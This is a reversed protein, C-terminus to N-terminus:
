LRLSFDERDKTLNENYYPDGKDIIDEWRERVHHVEQIVRKQKEPTDEYGRSLSEHHFLMAYPTYVLLYGADRIKLCLDVDNFAIALKEDFGGIQEFINKKMLLCAATVASVNQITDARGFYGHYKEPLHRHAHGGVPPHGIIGIVIGAHQVTHNPYLLKAGVAGVCDRQAHELMASLWEGDIVETDNNLFLLYPSDVHAVAYNNIASYNFPENYHLITIKSNTGLTKYYEFTEPEKSQNDVIVIEFNKYETKDLISQVCQKLVKVKDKTPIIISIKPNNCISYHIRYSSPFLGDQVDGDIKRRILVDRLAKKAAVFAYPKADIQDSASGQIMRWHYLIKPIHVITSPAIKETVRLFLDYDQSGDYGERFGGVSDILSKRIVSFHCLYNHSLFMDPSWDPKFFPDKRKGTEDIKDEDSYIFDVNPNRNLVQIIESLSFPSLEDDHDLFGVFEGTALALAANSNGSIGKNETLFRIKIRSDKAAYETLVPKIHPKTSGGDVLCLEWNDYTQNIVSEIARRIWREDTNWVPTIISIKPHCSFLQGGTTSQEPENGLSENKLIWIDYPDLLKLKSFVRFGISGAVPGNEDSLQLQRNTQNPNFWVAAAPDSASQLEFCYKKGTSHPISSFVFQSFRNDRIHSGPLQVTRIVPADFSGERLQLILDSNKRHHTATHLHIENMQDVPCVFTGRLPRQLLRPKNGPIGCIDIKIIPLSSQRFSFYKRYIKQKLTFGCARVGEHVLLRGGHIAQDYIMKRKKGAPFLVDFFNQIKKLVRWSISLQISDLAACLSNIVTNKHELEVSLDMLQERLRSIESMKTKISANQNDAALQLNRIQQNQDEIIKSFTSTIERLPVELSDDVMQKLDPDYFVPLEVDPSPHATFFYQYVTSDPLSKIFKLLNPPIKEDDIKLGTTGVGINATCIDSIQYDCDAFLLYINKIGFFHLHTQDLLGKVTYRFDGYLLNLFINGHCFNPLSVVLYGEPKLYKKIKKLLVAPKKLHELVDGCLIVDFSQPVFFADLDLEEIDGIIIRDCYQEAVSGAKPDIEIGTVINGQENLIKSVYGTSTGIELIKKHPGIGDLYLTWASNKNEPNIVLPEYQKASFHEDM